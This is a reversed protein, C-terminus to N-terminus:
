LKGPFRWRKQRSYPEDGSEDEQQSEEDEPRFSVGGIHAYNLALHYLNGAPEGPVGRGTGEKGDVIYSGYTIKRAPFYQVQCTQYAGLDYGEDAIFAFEPIEDQAAAGIVQHGEGGPIWVEHFVRGKGGNVGGAAAQGYFGATIINSHIRDSLCRELFRRTSEPVVNMMNVPAM